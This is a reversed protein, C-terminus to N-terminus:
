GISIGFILSYILFGTIIGFSCSLAGAYNLYKNLYLLGSVTISLVLISLPLGFGPETNLFNIMVLIAIMWASFLIYLLIEPAKQPPRLSRNFLSIYTIILPPLSGAALGKIGTELSLTFAQAIQILVLGVLIAYSLSILLRSLAYSLPKARGPANTDNKDLEQLKKNGVKRNFRTM